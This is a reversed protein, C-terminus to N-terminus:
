KNERIMKDIATRVLEGMSYGSKEKILKMNEIQSKRIFFNTRVLKDKTKM